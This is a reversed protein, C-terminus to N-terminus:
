NIVTVTTVEELARSVNEACRKGAPDGDAFFQVDLNRFLVAWPALNFTADPLAIVKCQDTESGEDLGHIADTEGESIFVRTIGHMALLSGRWLWKVSGQDWEARAKGGADKYRCKIGGTEYHFTLRGTDDLGLWSELALARITQPKWKRTAAVAEIFGEGELLNRSYRYIRNRQWETIRHPLGLPNDLSFEVQTQGPAQRGKPEEEQCREWLEMMASPVSIDRAAALFDIVDGGEGTAFDKWSRDNNYVSFSPIKDPRFPSCCSKAPTWEPFLERAIVPIPFRDKIKTIM